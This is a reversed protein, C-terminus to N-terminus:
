AVATRSTTPGGEESVHLDHGPAGSRLRGHLDSPSPRGSRPQLGDAADPQGPPGTLKVMVTFGVGAILAIALWVSHAPADVAATVM